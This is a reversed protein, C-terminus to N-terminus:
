QLLVEPIILVGTFGNCGSFSLLGINTISDPIALTGTFGSCERFAFDGIETVTHGDIERPIM